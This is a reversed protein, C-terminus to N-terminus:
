SLSVSVDVVPDQAAATDDKDVRNEQQGASGPILEGASHSAHKGGFNPSTLLSNSFSSSLADQLMSKAAHLQSQLEHVQNKLLQFQATSIREDDDADSGDAEDYGAAGIDSEVGTTRHVVHKALASQDGSSM